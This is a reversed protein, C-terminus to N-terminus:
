QLREARKVQITGPPADVTYCTDWRTSSQERLDSAPPRFKWACGNGQPQCRVWIIVAQPEAPATRFSTRGGIPAPTRRRGYKHGLWDYNGSTSQRSGFLRLHCAHGWHQRGAHHDRCQFRPLTHRNCNGISPFSFRLLTDSQQKGLEM